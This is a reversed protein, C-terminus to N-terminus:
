QKVVTKHYTESGVQLRLTYVGAPLASVDWQLLEDAVVGQGSLLPQGQLNYFAYGYGQGSRNPIAWNVQTSAPNPYPVWVASPNSVDALSTVAVVTLNQNVSPAAAFDANGAQSATITTTGAGVLTVTNGSITAVATNSSTYSVPLGSTATANLAFPADGLIRQALTGFLISQNSLMLLRAIRNRTIGNFTSFNGGVILKGDTQLVM